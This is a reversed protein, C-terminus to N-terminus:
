SSTAPASRLLASGARPTCQAVVRHLHANLPTQLAEVSVMAVALTAQVGGADDQRRRSLPSALCCPLATQMEAAVNSCGSCSCSTSCYAAPVCMAAALLSCVAADSHRKRWLGSAAPSKCHCVVFAGDDTPVTPLAAAESFAHVVHMLLARHSRPVSTCLSRDTNMEAAPLCNRGSAASPLIQRGCTGTGTATETRRWQRGFFAFTGHGPPLAKPASSTHATNDEWSGAGRCMSCTLSRWRRATTHQQRRIPAAAPAATHRCPLRHCAGVDRVDQLRERAVLAQLV